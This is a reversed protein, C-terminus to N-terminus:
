DLWREDKLQNKLEAWSITEEQKTLELDLLNELEEQLYVIVDHGTKYHRKLEILDVVVAKRRWEADTLYNIAEM